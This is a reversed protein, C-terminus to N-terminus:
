SGNAAAAAAQAQQVARYAAYAKVALAALSSSSANGSSCVAALTAMGTNIDRIAAQTKPGSGRAQVVGITAQAAMNIAASQGCVEDLTQRATETTVKVGQKVAAVFAAWKAEQEPTCAAASIAVLGIVLVASLRKLSIM